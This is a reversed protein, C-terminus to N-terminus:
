ETTTLCEVKGELVKKFHGRSSYTPELTVEVRYVGPTVIEGSSDLGDWVIEIEFPEQLLKPFVERVMKGETDYVKIGVNAPETLYLSITAGPNEKSFSEPFIGRIMGDVGVWYYQAGKEELIFVQGFRRWITIGRPSQFEKKGSGKRGFSIIPRLDRSLKHIQHNTQDTVYLNLYYDIALYGFHADSLGMEESTISGKRDGELSYKSIRKHDEDVVFLLDEKHFTWPSGKDNVVIGDPRELEGEGIWRLFEGEGTLVQIRDNGMDTIYLNGDSDLSIQHPQDFEGKDLGLSGITKVWHIENGDNFFKVIRHNGTDCIYVDGEATATVGRPWWFKGEGMGFKGYYKIETLGKNYLLQHSGSNVGYVTLEDDDKPDKPDDTSRLRVASVGQPDRVRLDPIPLFIKLYFPTAKYYGLSHSTPPFVLTTPDYDGAHVWDSTLLLSLPLLISRLIIM